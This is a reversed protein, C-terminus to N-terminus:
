ANGRGRGAGERQGPPGEESRGPPTEEGTDEDTPGEEDEAAERAEEAAERQEELEEEDAPEEAPADEDPREEAPAEDAEQPDGCPVAATVEDVVALLESAVEPSIREAALADRARSTLEDGESEAACGDGGDLHEALREARDALIALEDSANTTTGGCATLTAVLAAGSLVAAVRSGAPLGTYWRPRRFVM